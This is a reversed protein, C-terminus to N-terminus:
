DVDLRVALVQLESLSKGGVIFVLDTKSNSVCAAIKIKYM